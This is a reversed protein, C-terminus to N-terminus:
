RLTIAEDLNLVTQAIVTWCALEIGDLQRGTASEGVAVLEQAARPSARFTQRLRNLQAALMEIEDGEPARSLVHLFLHGLRESDDVEVALIEAALVRAAEIFTPDNLLVLAQM